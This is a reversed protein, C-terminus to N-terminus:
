ENDNELKVILTEVEDIAKDLGRITGVTLSYDAYDKPQRSVLRQINAQREERLSKLMADLRTM